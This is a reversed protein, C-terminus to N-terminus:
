LGKEWIYTRGKTIKNVLDTTLIKHTHWHKDHMLDNESLHLHRIQKGFQAVVEVIARTADKRNKAGLMLHGTDLCLDINKPIAHWRTNGYKLDWSGYNLWPANEWYLKINFLKRLGEGFAIFQYAKKRGPGLNHQIEFPLHVTLSKGCRAKCEVISILLKIYHKGNTLGYETYAHYHGDQVRMTTKFSELARIMDGFGMSYRWLGKYIVIFRLM